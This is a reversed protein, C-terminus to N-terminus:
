ADGDPDTATVSYAYEAGIVVETVPTSTFAPAGAATVEITFTQQSIAGSGNAVELVVDNAGLDASTPTGTLTGTGDGNDTLTLWAPLTSATLTLVADPDPDSAVIDYTYAQDVAAETVPTSTFRPMDSDIAVSDIALAGASGSAPSLSSLDARWRLDTGRAADPFVVPPGGPVIHLWDAGGNSSVWFDARNHLGLSEPAATLTVTDIADTQTADAVNLSAAVGRLQLVPDGGATGANVYLRNMAEHAANAADREENGAVLDLDGDNDFDGLATTNTVHADTGIEVETFTGTGDNLYLRNTFRTSGLAPENVGATSLVIDVDGDNDVDGANVHHVYGIATLATLESAPTSADFPAAPDGSNFYVQNPDGSLYNGVALDLFGDGNYDALAGGQSNDTEAGIPSETFTGDGNNRYWTNAQAENILVADNDGDNDLDGIQVSQSNLSSAGLPTGEIGNEAFPSAPDGSHYYIRSLFRNHAATVVDLYGDGNMDAVAVADVDPEDGPVALPVSVNVVTYDVGNGSNLYLRVPANLSGTVVDLDGDRDLDGVAVGRTNSFLAPTTPHGVLSYTGDGNLQNLYVQNRGNVAEAVDLLGDGDLDGTAMARTEYPGAGVDVGATAPGFPDTLPAAAPLRLEGPVSSGWDARTADPDSLHADDFPETFPLGEHAGYGPTTLALGWGFVTAAAAGM